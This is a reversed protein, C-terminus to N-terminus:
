KMIEYFDEKTKLVKSASNYMRLFDQLDQFNDRDKIM